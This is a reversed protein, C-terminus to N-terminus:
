AMLTASEFSRVTSATGAELRGMTSSAVPENFTLLATSVLPSRVSVAVVPSVMAPGTALAAPLTVSRELEMLEVTGIVAPPVRFTDSWARSAVVPLMRM